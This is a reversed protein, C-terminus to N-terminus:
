DELKPIEYVTYLTKGNKSHIFVYNQYVKIKCNSSERELLYQKLKGDKLREPSKGKRLANIYFQKQNRKDINARESLRLRSHHSLKM